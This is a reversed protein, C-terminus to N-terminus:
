SIRFSASLFTLKLGNLAKEAERTWELYPRDMSEYTKLLVEDFITPL